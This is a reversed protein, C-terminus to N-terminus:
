RQLLNVWAWIYVRVVMSYTVCCKMGIQASRQIQTRHAASRRTSAARSRSATCGSNQPTVGSSRKM